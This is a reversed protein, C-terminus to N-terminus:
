NYVYQYVTVGNMQIQLPARSPNIIVNVIAEGTPATIKVPYNDSYYFIENIHDADFVTAMDIFYFQDHIANFENARTDYEVSYNVTSSSSTNEIGTINGNTYTYSITNSLVGNDDFVFKKDITNNSNWSYRAFTDITAGNQDVLVISSVNGNNDYNFKTRGSLSWGGGSVSQYYNIINIKDQGTYLIQRRTNNDSVIEGIKQNQLWYKFTEGILPAQMRNEAKLSGVSGEVLADEGSVMVKFSCTEDNFSIQFETEEGEVPKGIGYLTIFQLGTTEFEGEAFFVMGNDNNSIISYTGPKTVTLGINVYNEGTLEKDKEYSGNVLVSLCNLNGEATGDQDGEEIDASFRGDTISFENGDADVAKGSFEATIKGNDVSIVKIAFSNGVTLESGFKPAGNELYQFVGKDGTYEGPAVPEGIIQFFVVGIGDTSVGQISFAELEGQTQKLVDIITGKHLVGGERFEWQNNLEIPKFEAGELSKEKSCSIGTILLSFFIVSLVNNVSKMVLM